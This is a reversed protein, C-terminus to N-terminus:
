AEKPKPPKAPRWAPQVLNSPLGYALQASVVIRAEVAPPEYHM